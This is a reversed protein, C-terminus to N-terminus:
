HYKFQQSSSSQTGSENITQNVHLHFCLNSLLRGIFCYKFLKLRLIVRPRIIHVSRRCSSSKVVVLLARLVLLCDFFFIVVTNRQLTRSRSCFLAFVVSGFVGSEVQGRLSVACCCYVWWWGAILKRSSGDCLAVSLYTTVSLLTESM